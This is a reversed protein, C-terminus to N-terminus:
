VWAVVVVEDILGAGLVPRWRQLQDQRGRGEEESVAGGGEQAAAAAAAVHVEDGEQTLVESTCVEFEM